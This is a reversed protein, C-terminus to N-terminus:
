EFYLVHKSIELTQVEIKEIKEEQVNLKQIIKNRIVGTEKEIIDVLMKVTDSKKYSLLFSYKESIVFIDIYVNEVSLPLHQPPFFVNIVNRDWGVYGDDNKICGDKDVFNGKHFIRCVSSDALNDELILYDILNKYHNRDDFKLTLENEKYYNRRIKYETKRSIDVYLITPYLVDGRVHIDIIDEAPKCFLNRKFNTNSKYIWIDDMKLDDIEVNFRLDSPLSSKNKKLENVIFSRLEGIREMVQSYENNKLNIELLFQGEYDCFQIYISDFPSPISKEQGSTSNEQSSTSNNQGSTSNRQRSIPVALIGDDKSLPKDDTGCGILGYDDLKHNENLPIAAERTLLCYDKPDKENEELFKKKIEKIITKLPDIDKLKLVGSGYLYIFVNMKKPIEVREGQWESGYKVEDPYLHSPFSEELFFFDRSDPRFHLPNEPKDYFDRDHPHSFDAKRSLDVFCDYCFNNSPDDSLCYHYRKENDPIKKNDRTGENNPFEENDATPKREKCYSCCFHSPIAPNYILFKYNTENRTYKEYCKHCFIEGGRRIFDVGVDVKVYKIASNKIYLKCDSCLLSDTEINKSAVSVSIENDNDELISSNGGYTVSEIPNVM